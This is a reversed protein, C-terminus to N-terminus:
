GFMGPFEVNEATGVIDDIESVLTEVEDRQDHEANAEDDLWEQAADKAAEITRIAEHRRDSRSMRRQPKYSFTVTLGSVCEPVDPASLYELENATEDLTSYRDTSQLSEPMNDCVERCESGLEEFASMADDIAGEVTSEYKQMEIKRAM